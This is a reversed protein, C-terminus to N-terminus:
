RAKELESQQLPAVWISSASGDLRTWVPVVFGNYAAIATYKGPLGNTDPLFPTASLKVNKFTTGNDASWALYVDTHTDAHDRRDYFLVYIYGTVPDVTLAPAFQHADTEDTHVRVPPTWNDGMNFSRMFWIDAHGDGADTWILYLAGSFRGKSHDTVLQPSGDVVGMGPIHLKQGGPQNTLQIDHTLWTSGGDWSRDMFIKGGQAWAVFIKGDNTVAPMPGYPMEDPKCSADTATIRMTRSFKKGSQAKSILINARCSNEQVYLETWTVYVTGDRGITAAPNVPHANESLATIIGADWYRGDDSAQVVIRDSSLQEQGAKGSLHAYYYKGKYDGLVMPSGGFPYPCILRKGSWTKGRDSSHYVWGKGSGVVVNDPNKPNIAVAPHHPAERGAASSDILINAFQAPLSFWFLSFILPILWKCM